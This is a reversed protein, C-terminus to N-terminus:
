ENEQSDRVMIKFAMGRGLAYKMGNVLVVLAGCNGRQVQVPVDPAFGMEFLRRSLKKGANIGCVRGIKGEPLLSLPMSSGM